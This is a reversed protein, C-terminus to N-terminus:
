VKILVYATRHPTRELRVAVYGDAFAQMFQDRTRLRLALAAARDAKKLAQFHPTIEIEMKASANAENFYARTEPTLWWEPEFRDSPLGRNLGDRMDGYCNPIYKRVIVGLKNLNLWANRAELPDYTWTMLNQGLALTAEAQAKKLAEGIGMGQVEPMVGAMQSHQSLGQAARPGNAPIHAPSLFSLVFGLMKGEPTFAGLAIGGHRQLTVTFNSPTYLPDNWIISQAQECQEHDSIDKFPRIHYSISM